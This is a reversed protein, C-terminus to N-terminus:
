TSVPPFTPQKEEVGEDLPRERFYLGWRQMVEKVQQSKLGTLEKFFGALAHAHLYEETCVWSAESPVIYLLGNQHACQVELRKSGQDHKITIGYSM